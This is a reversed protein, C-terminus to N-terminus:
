YNTILGLLKQRQEKSLEKDIDEFFEFFRNEATEKAIQDLQDQSIYKLVVNSIDQSEEDQEDVENLMNEQKDKPLAELASIMVETNLNEIFREIYFDKYEGFEIADLIRNLETKITQVKSM